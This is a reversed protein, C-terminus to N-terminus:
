ISIQQKIEQVIWDPDDLPLDHGAKPHTINKTDFHKALNDSCKPSALQDRAGSFIILKPEIKKPVKFKSAAYVQNFFNKRRIPFEEAYFAYKNVLTDDIDIMSTTLKLIEKERTFSNNNFVQKSITAIAKPSIREWFPNLDGGSSNILIIDQFDHPHMEVWRMAIMGGLSISIIGWPGPHNKKLDLFELRLNEVYEDLNTPATQNNKSGVGPIELPSIVGTFTKALREPFEGWHRTERSLGRLLIWNFPILDM